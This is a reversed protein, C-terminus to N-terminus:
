HVLDCGGKTELSLQYPGVVGCLSGRLLVLACNCAAKVLTLGMGLPRRPQLYADGLAVKMEDMTTADKKFFIVLTVSSFLDALKQSDDGKILATMFNALAEGYSTNVALFDSTEGEL